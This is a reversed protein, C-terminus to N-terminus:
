AQRRRAVAVALLGSGLLLFTSPEPTPIPEGSDVEGIRAEYWDLFPDYYSDLTGGSLTHMLGGTGVLGTAPNVAGGTYEDWLSLMHGYEHAAVEEQYSDGWNAAGVTYWTRMNWRGGDDVVRVLYDYGLTVWDVNFLIPVSFRNTSWISEIGSEWRSLLADAVAAGHLAIDIDVRLADDIFGIDYSYAWGYPASYRSGSVHEYDFTIAEAAASTALLLILAAFLKKM